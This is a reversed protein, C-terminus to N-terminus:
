GSVTVADCLLANAKQMTQDLKFRAGFIHGLRVIVLEKSPVVITRQLGGGSFWFADKPLGSAVGARNLLMFGGYYPEESGPAPSLAFDIYDEQLLQENGWAGRQLWLQGVKAWDRATGYDHGSILFGGYPDTELVFNTAGLLDFLLSQPLRHFEALSATARERIFHMVLLPDCNRYRVASGPAIETPKELCFRYSDCGSAYVYIHDLFKGGREKVNTDEGRGFSGSFDLGSSMNLLHRLKINARPDGDASWADFLHDEDIDLHGKAHLRGILTSAISKGMSWSEFRTEQDFPARYHEAVIQGKHLVLYANTMQRGDEFMLAVAEDVFKQDIDTHGTELAQLSQPAPVIDTPEFHSEADLPEAVMAGMNGNVQASASQGQKTLTISQRSEDEIIEVGELLVDTPKKGRLQELEAANSFTWAISEKLVDEPTRGTIYKGSCTVKAAWGLGCRLTNDQPIAM